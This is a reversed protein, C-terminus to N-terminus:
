KEVGVRWLISRSGNLLVWDPAM